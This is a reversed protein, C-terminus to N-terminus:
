HGDLSATRAQALRAFEPCPLGFMLLGEAKPTGCAKEIRGIENLPLYEDLSKIKSSQVHAECMVEVPAIGLREYFATTQYNSM